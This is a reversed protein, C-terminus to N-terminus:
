VMVEESHVVGDLKYQLKVPITYNTEMVERFKDGMTTLLLDMHKEQVLFSDHVPLIPVEKEVFEKIILEAIKSDTNQLILGFDYIGGNMSSYIEDFDEEVMQAIFKARTLTLHKKKEEPLERIMKNIASFSEQHSNCNFMINVSTKLVEYDVDSYVDDRLMYAYVDLPMEKQYVFNLMAAAIMFHMGRFDVEVVREGDITIDLRAKTDKNKIKLIDARYWRGGLNYSKNFVRCYSNELVVGDGDVVSSKNLLKNLKRVIAEMEEKGNVGINFYKENILDEMIEEKFENRVISVVMTDLYNDEAELMDEEILQLENHFLHLLKKTPKIYSIKRDESNAGGVGIYNVVLGEKELYSIARIVKRATVKRKGKPPYGTNRSYVLVYDKRICALLNSLVVNVVSVEKINKGRNYYSIKKNVKLDYTILRSGVMNGLIDEYM